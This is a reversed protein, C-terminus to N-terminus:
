LFLVRSMYDSDLPRLGMVRLLLPAFASIWVADNTSPELHIPVLYAGYRSIVGRNLAFVAAEHWRCYQLWFPVLGQKNEAALMRLAMQYGRNFQQNLEDQSLGTCDAMCTLCCGFEARRFCEQCVSHGCNFQHVKQGIEFRQTGDPSLASCMFCMPSFNEGELDGSGVIVVEATYQKTQDLPRRVRATVLLHLYESLRELRRICHLRLNNDCGPDRAMNACATDLAGLDTITMAEFEHYRSLQFDSPPPVPAAATWNQLAGILGIVMSSNSVATLLTGCAAYVVLGAAHGTFAWRRPTSVTSEPALKMLWAAGYSCSISFVTDEVIFICRTSMKLLSEKHWVRNAESLTQAVFTRCGLILGHMLWERQGCRPILDRMADNSLPIFTFIWRWRTPIFVQLSSDFFASLHAMSPFAGIPGLLHSAFRLAVAEVGINVLELIVQSPKLYLLVQRVGKREQFKELAKPYIARLAMVGGIAIGKYVLQKAVLRIILQRTSLQLYEDKASDM